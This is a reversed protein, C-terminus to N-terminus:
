SKKFTKARTLVFFLGDQIDTIGSYGCYPSDLIISHILSYLPVIALFFLLFNLCAFLLPWIETDYVAM